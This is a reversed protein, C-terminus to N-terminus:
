IDQCTCFSFTDKVAAHVSLTPRFTFGGLPPLERNRIVRVVRSHVMISVLVVATLGVLDQKNIIHKLSVLDKNIREWM